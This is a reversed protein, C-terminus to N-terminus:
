QNTPYNEFRKKITMAEDYDLVNDLSLLSLKHGTAKEEITCLYVEINDGESLSSYTSHDNYELRLDKYDIKTTYSYSTTYYGEGYYMHSVDERNEVVKAIVKETKIIKIQENVENYEKQYEESSKCGVLGILSLIMLIILGIRKM